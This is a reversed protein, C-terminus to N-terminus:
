TLQMRSKKMTHELFTLKVHLFTALHKLVNEKVIPMNNFYITGHDTASNKLSFVIEQAQKSTDLTFLM